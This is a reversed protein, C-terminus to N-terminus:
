KGICFKSFISGLIEDTTIEGTIEGIYHLVQRIDMAIIDTPIRSSLGEIVMELSEKAKFLSEYHRTNTVVVAENNVIAPAFEITLENILEDINTNHKASIAIVRSNSFHSKLAGTISKLTVTDVMDAKNIVIIMRQHEKLSNNVSHVEDLSHDTGERADIMMLVVIAQSIKIYAREIGIAEIKDNTSRLGATDVFRYSVGGINITDEITDRTTGAIESVIAKDDNLLRNLLTSKGVNPKGAITVPIGTKSRFLM